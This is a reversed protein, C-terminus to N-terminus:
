RQLNFINLDLTINGFSLKMMGNGYSILAMSTALFPCRLIALIHSEANPVRKTDMVVFDITSIFEGVKILTHEV